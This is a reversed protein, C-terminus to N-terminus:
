EGSQQQKQLHTQMCVVSVFLDQEMQIGHKGPWHGSSIMILKKEFKLAQISM